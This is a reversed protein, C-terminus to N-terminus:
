LPPRASPGGVDPSRPDVRKWWAVFRALKGAAEDAIRRGREDSALRPDAMSGSPPAIDTMNLPLLVESGEFRLGNLSAVDVGEYQGVGFEEVAEPRAHQPFLHRMLSGMPEAGHGIGRGAYLERSVEPTLALGLPSVVPVMVGRERRLRRVLNLLPAENGKHGNVLVVHRFGQDLYCGVVEGVLADLVTWSISATGPFERFYESCSYPLPPVVVDGNQEAARVAVVETALFDGMPTHPGHEETSGMPFLVASGADRRREAERWPMEALRVTAGAVDSTV